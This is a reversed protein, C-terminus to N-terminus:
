HAVAVHRKAKSQGIIHKDLEEVIQLPTLESAAKIIAEATTTM